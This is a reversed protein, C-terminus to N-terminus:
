NSIGSTGSTREGLAAISDQILREHDKPNLEKRVIQAAASTALTAAKSYLESIAADKALGIERKARELLKAAEQKAEDEIRHKVVEADRRGEEVIKTAEARASTLKEAHEKLRAEAEDRDRKAAALAKHIFNERDQLGKLITPWGFRGLVFVVGMFILVTWFAIGIDGAFISPDGQEESAFAAMPTALALLWATVGFSMRTRKM